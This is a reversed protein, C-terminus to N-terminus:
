KVWIPFEEYWSVDIPKVRNVWDDFKYNMLARYDVVSDGTLPIPESTVVPPDVFELKPLGVDLYKCIHFFLNTTLHRKGTNNNYVRICQNLCELLWIYHTHSKYVWLVSPHNNHTDAYIIRKALICKGLKYKLIDGELLYWKRPKLRVVKIKSGDELLKISTKKIYVDILTGMQTRIVTSAIQAYEVIMKRNHVKNLDKAAQKPDRDTFFINM